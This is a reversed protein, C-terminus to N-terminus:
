VTGMLENIKNLFDIACSKKYLKRYRRIAESRCEAALEKEKIGLDSQEALILYLAHYIDAKYESKRESKLKALLEATLLRCAAPKDYSMRYATKKLLLQALFVIGKREVEVALKTAKVALKQAMVFKKQLYYQEALFFYFSCLYYNCQLTEGLEIAKKFYSESKNYSKVERYVYGLNGFCIALYEKEGTKDLILQQKKFNALAVHYNGLMLNIQGINAYAVGTFSLNGIPKSIAQMKQHQELAKETQGLAEYVSGLQNAFSALLKLNNEREAIFVADELFEKAAVYNGKHCYIGALSGLAVAKHMILGTTEVIKLVTNFYRIALMTKGKKQQIVALAYYAFQEDELQNYQRALKIQNTYLTVAKDIRGSSVLLSGYCSHSRLVGVTDCNKKALAVAQKYSKKASKFDGQRQQLAGIQQLLATKLLDDPCLTLVELIIAHLEEAKQDLAAVAAQRAYNKLLHLGRSITKLDVSLGVKPFNIVSKPCLLQNNLLFEANIKGSEQQHLSQFNYVILAALWRSCSDSSDPLERYLRGIERSFLDIKKGKDVIIKVSHSNLVKTLAKHASSRIKLETLLNIRLSENGPLAKLATFVYDCFAASAFQSREESLMVFCCSPRELELVAVCEGTNIIKHYFRFQYDAGITDVRNQSQLLKLKQNIVSISYELKLASRIQSASLTPNEQKLRLIELEVALPMRVPAPRGARRDALAAKGSQQFHKLWNNITNRHVGYLKATKSVGLEGATNIIELKLDSDRDTM